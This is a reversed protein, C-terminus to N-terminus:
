TGKGEFTVPGHGDRVIVLNVNKIEVSSGGERPERKTATASLSSSMVSVREVRPISPSPPQTRGAMQDEFVITGDKIVLVPLSEELQSPGLVHSVNWSGDALRSFRLRPKYLEVKRIVLKGDNLQEKDHYILASPVYAFETRENGERRCLHLENLSIEGLLRLYASDLSVEAGPFHAQLVTLAERKITGSNTWRHYLFGASAVGAVILFVLIRVLWKRWSMCWRRAPLSRSKAELCPKGM